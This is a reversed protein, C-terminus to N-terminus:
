KGVGPKLRLLTSYVCATVDKNDSNKGFFLLIFGACVFAGAIFSSTGM